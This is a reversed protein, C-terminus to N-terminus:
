NRSRSAISPSGSSSVCRSCLRASHRAGRGYYRWLDFPTRMGKDITPYLMLEDTTGTVLTSDSAPGHRSAACPPAAVGLTAIDPDFQSAAASGRNSTLHALPVRSHETGRYKTTPRPLGTPWERRCRDRDRDCQHQSEHPTMWESIPKCLCFRSPRHRRNSSSAPLLQALAGDPRGRSLRYEQPHVPRRIDTRFPCVQFHVGATRLPSRLDGAHPAPVTGPGPPPRRQVPIGPRDRCELIALWWLATTADLTGGTLRM